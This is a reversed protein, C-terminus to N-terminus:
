DARPDYYYGELFATSAMQMLNQYGDHNRALVTLHCNEKQSHGRDTLKGKSFYMECGVIPNIGLKKCHLYFEVAGYMNGHDTLAFAKAGDAALRKLAESPGGSHDSLRIMGDMLSYESHNHLHVFEPKGSASM